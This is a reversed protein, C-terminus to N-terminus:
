ERFSRRICISPYDACLRFLDVIDHTYHYYAADHEPEGASLFTVGRHVSTVVPRDSELAAFTVRHGDRSALEEALGQMHIIHSKQSAGIFLIHRM